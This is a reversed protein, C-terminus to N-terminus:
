AVEIAGDVIFREGHKGVVIECANAAIHGGIGTPLWAACQIVCEDFTVQICLAMHYWKICGVM